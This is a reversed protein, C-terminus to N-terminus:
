EAPRRTKASAEERLKELLTKLMLKRREIYELAEDKPVEIYLGGALGIYAKSGSAKSLLSKAEELEALLAEVEIMYAELSRAEPRGHMSM